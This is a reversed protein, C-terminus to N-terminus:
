IETMDRFLLSIIWFISNSRSLLIRFDGPAPRFVQKVIARNIADASSKRTNPPYIHFDLIVIKKQKNLESERYM